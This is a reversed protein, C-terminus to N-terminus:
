HFTSLVFNPQLCDSTTLHSSIRTYNIDILQLVPHKMYKINDKRFKVSIMHSYNSYHYQM